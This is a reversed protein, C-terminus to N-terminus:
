RGQGGKQNPKPTALQQFYGQAHFSNQSARVTNQAKRENAGPDLANDAKEAEIGRGIDDRVTSQDRPLSTLNPVTKRLTAPVMHGEYDRHEQGTQFEVYKNKAEQIRGDLTNKNQVTASKIISPKSSQQSSDPSSTNINENLGIFAKFSSWMRLLISPTSKVKSLKIANQKESEMRDEEAKMVELKLTPLEKAKQEKLAKKDKEVKDKVAQIVKLVSSASTLPESTKQSVNSEKLKSVERNANKITTDVQLRQISQQRRAEAGSSAQSTVGSSAQSKPGSSAQSQPGSPASSQPSPAGPGPPASSAQELSAQSAQGTSAQSSQPEVFIGNIYNGPKLSPSGGWRDEMSLLRNSRTSTAGSSAQLQSSTNIKPDEIVLRPPTNPIELDRRTIETLVSRLLNGQVERESSRPGSTPPTNSTGSTVQPPTVQKLSTPPIFFGRKVKTKEAKPDLPELALTTPQEAM